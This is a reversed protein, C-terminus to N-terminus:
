NLFDFLSGLTSFAVSVNDFFNNPKQKESDKMAANDFM